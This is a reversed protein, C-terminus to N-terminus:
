ASSCKLVTSRSKSRTTRATPKSGLGSIESLMACSPISSLSNPKQLVLRNEGSSVDRGPTKTAPAKWSGLSIGSVTVWALAAAEM